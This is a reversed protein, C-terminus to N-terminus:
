ELVGACGRVCGGVLVVSGPVVGGGLVRNLEASAIRVRRAAGAAARVEGLPTLTGTEDAEGAAWATRLPARRASGRGADRPGAYAKVTNYARCSECAGVWKAHEHGCDGCVFVERPRKSSAWRPAGGGGGGGMHIHMGGGGGARLSAAACAGPNAAGGHARAAIRAVRLVAFSM